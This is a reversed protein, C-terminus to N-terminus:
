IGVDELAAAVGSADNGLTVKFGNSKLDESANGMIYPIGAYELMELDNYNDGIAMVEERGYGRFEAWRRLAHGKSCERNLVDLICLNRAEYQTKLATFESSFDAIALHAEAEKMRAIQGCFMAQVPDTSLTNEIPIVTLIYEANKEMWRQISGNLTEASEIVLAGRGEVDFTFVVNPRFADMHAMLKRAVTAPLLDRHFLEGRSSKTVAGNSTILWVDFGLEAAVPMAFAHRRGTGLVIEVGAEHARRLAALNASSIQFQPDLLTGDIDLALLRIPAKM